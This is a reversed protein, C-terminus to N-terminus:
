MSKSRSMKTRNIHALQAAESCSQFLRERRETKPHIMEVPRAANTTLPVKGDRKNSTFCLQAEQTALLVTSDKDAAGQRVSNYSFQTQPKRYKRDTYRRRPKKSPNKSAAFPDTAKSSVKNRECQQTQRLVRQNRSTSIARDCQHHTTLVRQDAANSTLHQDTTAAADNSIKFYKWEAIPLKPVMLRLSASPHEESSNTSSVDDINTPTILRRGSPAPASAAVCSSSLTTNSGTEAQPAKIQFVLVRSAHIGLLSQESPLLFDGYKEQNSSVVSLLRSFSSMMTENKSVQQQDFHAQQATAKNRM